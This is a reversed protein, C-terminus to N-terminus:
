RRHKQHSVDSPFPRRISAYYSSQYADDSDGTLDAFADFSRRHMAHNDASESYFSSTGTTAVTSTSTQIAEQAAKYDDDFFDVDNDMDEELGPYLLGKVAGDNEDEDMEDNIYQQHNSHNSRRIKQLDETLLQQKSAKANANGQLQPSEDEKPTYKGAVENTQVVPSSTFDNM